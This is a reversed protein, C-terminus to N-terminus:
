KKGACYPCGEGGNRHAVSARWEHGKDCMWWVKRGSCVTLMEVSLEGNKSPHYEKALDPNLTALDTEGLIAKKGACYPCGAGRNRITVKSQWEHGKNCIWWVKRGSDVCITDATIGINKTPHLESALKPNLTKLDTEGKIAQRGSCYPCGRGNKRSFVSAKWEHGKDCIWWVSVRSGLMVNKATINKNKQPHFELALQPNTTALDNVGEVLMRGSCVPCGGGVSRSSVTTMWSHGQKCKWWVKKNSKISITNPSIGINKSYDWEEALKPYRLLLNHIKEIGEDTIEYRKNDYLFWILPAIQSQLTMIGVM